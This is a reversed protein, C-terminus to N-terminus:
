PPLEAIKRSPGNPLGSAWAVIEAPEARADPAPSVVAVAEEGLREDLSFHSLEAFPAAGPAAEAYTRARGGARGGDRTTRRDFM